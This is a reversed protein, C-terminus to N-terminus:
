SKPPAIKELKWKDIRGHEKVRGDEFRITINDSNQYAIVTAKAGCNMVRTQGIYKRDYNQLAFNPYNNM